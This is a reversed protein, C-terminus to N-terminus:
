RYKACQETAGKSSYDSIALATQFKLANLARSSIPLTTSSLTSPLRTRMDQSLNSSVRSPIVQKPLLQTVVQFLDSATVIARWHDVALM